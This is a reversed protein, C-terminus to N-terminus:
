FLGRDDFVLLEIGEYVDCPADASKDLIGDKSDLSRPAIDMPPDALILSISVVSRLTGEVSTSQCGLGDVRRTRRDHSSRPRLRPPLGILVSLAAEPDEAREHGIGLGSGAGSGGTRSNSKESNGSESRGQISSLTSRVWHGATNDTM